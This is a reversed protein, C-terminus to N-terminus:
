DPVSMEVPRNGVTDSTGAAWESTTQILDHKSPKETWYEEDMFPLFIQHGPVIFPINAKRLSDCQRRMLRREVVVTPRNWRRVLGAYMRKIDFLSSSWDIHFLLFTGGRYTAQLIDVDDRISPHLEHALPWEATSIELELTEWLYNLAEEM